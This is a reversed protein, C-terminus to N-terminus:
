RHRPRILQVHRRGLHRIYAIGLELQGRRGTGAHQRQHTLAAVQLEPDRGAFLNQQHTIAQRHAADAQAQVAIQVPRAESVDRGELLAEM